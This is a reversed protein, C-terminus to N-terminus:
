MRSDLRSKFRKYDHGARIDCEKYLRSTYNVINEKGREEASSTTADKEATRPAHNLKMFYYQCYLSIWYEMELQFNIDLLIFCDTSIKLKM